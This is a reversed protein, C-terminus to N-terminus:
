CYQAVAEVHGADTTSCATGMVVPYVPANRKMGAKVITAESGSGFFMQGSRKERTACQRTAIARDM